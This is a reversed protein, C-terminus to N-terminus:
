SDVTGAGSGGSPFRSGLPIEGEGTHSQGDTYQCPSSDSSSETEYNTEELEEEKLITNVTVYIRANYLHAHKVLAEIDELSNVAAARAGFKPAGIYVADAGHNIAEIGCELNKAPALLEIKRQRIM